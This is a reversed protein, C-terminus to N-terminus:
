AVTVTIQKEEGNGSFLVMDTSGAKKGTVTVTIAAGFTAQSVTAITPDKAYAYIYGAPTDLTSEATVDATGAVALALETVSPTITNVANYDVEAFANCYDAYNINANSGEMVGAGIVQWIKKDEGLSGGSFLIPIGCSLTDPIATGAAPHIDSYIPNRIEAILSHYVAYTPAYCRIPVFSYRNLLEKEALAAACSGYSLLIHDICGSRAAIEMIDANTGGKRDCVLMVNYAKMTQFVAQLTNLPYVGGSDWTYNKIDAYNSTSFTVTRAEGNEYMTYSASHAMIYVGDACQQIDIELWKYGNEIAAIYAAITNEPCNVFYGRHSMIKYRNLDAEIRSVEGRGSYIKM